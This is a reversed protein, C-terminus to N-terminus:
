RYYTHKRDLWEKPMDYYIFEAFYAPYALAWTINHLVWSQWWCYCLSGFLWDFKVKAHFLHCWILSPDSVVWLNTSSILMRKYRCVNQFTHNRFIIFTFKDGNRLVTSINIRGTSMDNGDKSPEYNWNFVCLSLFIFHTVCVIFLM